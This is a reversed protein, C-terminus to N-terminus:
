VKKDLCIYEEGVVVGAEEVLGYGGSQVGDGKADAEDHFVFITAESGAECPGNEESDSKCNEWDEEKGREKEKRENGGLKYCIGYVSASLDKGREVM